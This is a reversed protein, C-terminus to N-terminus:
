RATGWRFEFDPDRTDIHLQAHGRTLGCVVSPLEPLRRRCPSAPAPAPLPTPRRRPRTGFLWM